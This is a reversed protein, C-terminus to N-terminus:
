STSHPVMLNHIGPHAADTIEASPLYVCSSRFGLRMGTLGACFIRTRTELTGKIVQEKASTGDLSDM